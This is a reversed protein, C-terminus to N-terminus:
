GSPAVTEKRFLRAVGSWVLAIVATSLFAAIGGLFIGWGAAVNSVLVLVFWTVLVVRQATGAKSWYRSIM